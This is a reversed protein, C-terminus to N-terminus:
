EHEFEELHPSSLPQASMEIRNIKSSQSTKRLQTPHPKNVAFMRKLDSLVVRDEM